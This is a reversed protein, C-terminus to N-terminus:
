SQGQGKYVDKNILNSFIAVIDMGDIFDHKPNTSTVNLKIGNEECEKKKRILLINLINNSDRICM